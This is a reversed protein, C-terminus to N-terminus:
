EVPERYPDQHYIPPAKQTPPTPPELVLEGMAQQGATFVQKMKEEFPHASADDRTTAPKTPIPPLLPETEEATPLNDPAPASHPIHFTSNQIPAPPTATPPSPITTTEQAPLAETNEATEKEFFGILAPRIPAFIKKEVANVIAELVARNTIGVERELNKRFEDPHALGVLVLNIEQSFTLLEENSLNYLSAIEDVSTEWVGSLIFARIEKPLKRLQGKFINETENEM